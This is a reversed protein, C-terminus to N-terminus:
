VSKSNEILTKIFDEFDEPQEAEKKYLYKVKKVSEWIKKEISIEQIDNIQEISFIGIKKANQNDKHVISDHKLIEHILHIGLQEFQLGNKGDIYLKSWSEEEGPPIRVDIVIAHFVNEKLQLIADSATRVVELNYDFNMELKTRFELLSTDAEDEIWLIQYM